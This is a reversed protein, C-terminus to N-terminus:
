EWPAKRRSSSGFAPSSKSAQRRAMMKAKISGRGDGDLELDYRGPGNQVSTSRRAVIGVREKAAPGAFVSTGLRSLNHNSRLLSTGTEYEGIGPTCSKRVHGGLDTTSRFQGTARPTLARPNSLGFLHSYDYAGPDGHRVSGRPASASRPTQSVGSERPSKTMFSSAGKSSDKNYSRKTRCGLTEKSGNHVGNVNIASHAGPDGTHRSILGKVGCARSERTMDSAFQSGGRASYSGSAFAGQTSNGDDDAYKPHWCLESGDSSRPSQRRPSSSRASSKRPSTLVTM